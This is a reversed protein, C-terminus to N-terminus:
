VPTRPSSHLRISLSMPTHSRSGLMVMVCSRADRYEGLRYGKRFYGPAFTPVPTAIGATLGVLGTDGFTRGLRNLGCM